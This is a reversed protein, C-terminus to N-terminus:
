IKFSIMIESVKIYVEKFYYLIMLHIPIETNDMEYEENAGGRTITVQLGSCYTWVNIDQINCTEKM